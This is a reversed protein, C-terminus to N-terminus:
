ASIASVTAAWRRGAAMLERVEQHTLSRGGIGVYKKYLFITFPFEFEKLIPMAVTHTAKWGDDITIMISPDPIPKEGRKWALYDQMSIVPVDGDNISQMQERFDDGHIVMDSTRRSGDTFDHYGLISVVADKNVVVVPEMKVPKPPPPPVTDPVDSLLPSKPKASPDVAAADTSDSTGDDNSPECSALLLLAALGALM